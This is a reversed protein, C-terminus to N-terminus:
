PDVHGNVVAPVMGAYTSEGASPTARIAITGGVNVAGRRM